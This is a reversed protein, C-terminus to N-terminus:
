PRVNDKMVAAPVGEASIRVEYKDLLEHFMRKQADLVSYYEYQRAVFDRIDEFPALRAPQNESVSSPYEEDDDSQSLTFSAGWIM